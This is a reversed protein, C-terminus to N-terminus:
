LKKLNVATFDNDMGTDWVTWGTMSPLSRLIWM